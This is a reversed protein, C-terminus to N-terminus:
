GVEGFHFDSSGTKTRVWFTGSGDVIGGGDESPMYVYGREIAPPEAVSERVYIENPGNNSFTFSADVTTFFEQWAETVKITVTDGM